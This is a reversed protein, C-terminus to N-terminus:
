AMMTASELRGWEWRCIGYCGGHGGGPGIGRTIQVVGGVEFEEEVFVV